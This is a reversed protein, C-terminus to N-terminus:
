SDSCADCAEQAKACDGQARACADVYRTQQAHDDALSCISAELECIADALECVRQCQSAEEAVAPVRQAEAERGTLPVGASVLEDEVETLRAELDDIGDREGGDDAYDAVAGEQAASADAGASPAETASPSSKKACAGVGVGAMVLSVVVAWHPRHPHSLSGRMM